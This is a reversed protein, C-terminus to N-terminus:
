DEADGRGACLECGSVVRVGPAQGSLAVLECCVELASAGLFKSEPCGEGERVDLHTEDFECICEIVKIGVAYSDERISM